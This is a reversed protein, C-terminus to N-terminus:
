NEVPKFEVAFLALVQWNMEKEIQCFLCYENWYRLYLLKTIVDVVYFETHEM